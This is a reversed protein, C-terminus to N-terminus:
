GPTNKKAIRILPQPEDGAWCFPRTLSLELGHVDDRKRRRFSFASAFIRALSPPIWEVERAGGLM